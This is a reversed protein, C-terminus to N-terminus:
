TIKLINALNGFYTLYLKTYCIKHRGSIYQNTACKVFYDLPVACFRVNRIGLQGFGPLCRLRLGLPVIPTYSVTGSLWLDWRPSLHLAAKRHNGFVFKRLGLPVIPTYLFLELSGCLGLPAVPTYFSFAGVALM